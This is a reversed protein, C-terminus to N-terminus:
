AQKNLEDYLEQVKWLPNVQQKKRPSSRYDAATFYHRFHKWCRAAKITKGPTSNMKTLANSILDSGLLPEKDESCFWYKVQPNPILGNAFLVGFMKYMEASDFSVVDTYEGSGM